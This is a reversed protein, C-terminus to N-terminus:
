LRDLYCLSSLWRFFLLVRLTIALRFDEPNGKKGGIQKPRPRSYDIREICAQLLKNLEKVPADPDNLLDLAARFTIIKDHLDIHEPEANKAECLAQTVDEIEAVTKTNLQHFVLDPMGGRTKEDWQKIELEQLEVLKKELRHILQRHIEASNDAGQEIRVEFEEIGDRLVVAIEDLVEQMIVSGNERCRVYSCGLRPLGVNKGKHWNQKYAMAKGCSCYMIKALPNKMQKDTHHKPIKGKIEHVKDWVEQDIIAPHLGDFVLYDEALLRRRKIEGGEVSLTKKRHNWRTKGLYHVNFLINSITTPSWNKGQPARAHEKELIECIGTSGVGSCYLDFIRKVIEAEEPIPELTRCTKRGDKYTVKKYGYPPVTGIYQGSKVALLKGDQMIKKSYELYENGRMLDREFLERDRDDNLDYAYQLTLV